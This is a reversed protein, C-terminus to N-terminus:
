CGCTVFLCHGNNIGHAAHLHFRPLCSQYGVVLPMVVPEARQVAPVGKLLIRLPIQLRLGHLVLQGRAPPSPIQLPHCLRVPLQEAAPWGPTAVSRMIFAPRANNCELCRTVIANQQVGKENHTPGEYGLGSLLSLDAWFYAKPFITERVQMM